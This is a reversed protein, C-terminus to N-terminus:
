QICLLFELAGSGDTESRLSTDTSMLSHDCTGGLRGLHKAASINTLDTRLTGGCCMTKKTKATGGHHKWRWPSLRHDHLLSFLSAVCFLRSRTHSLQM